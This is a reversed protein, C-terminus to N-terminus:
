LHKAITNKLIESSGGAIEYAKADRLYRGFPQTELMGQAGCIQIAQTAAHVAVRSAMLKAQAPLREIDREQEVARAAAYTLLRAADIETVLEAFYWAIGQHEIIPKGGAKRTRAWELAGTTAARAIGLTIAAALTRSYDLSTAAHRIGNGEEGLMCDLPIRAATLRVTCHPGNRLGFAHVDDTAPEVSVGPADRPVVFATIGGEADALIVFLEAASSSTVYAKAGDLIWGDPTRRAKTDLRKVDSGHAAETMAFSAVLGDNFRPLYRAKAAETGSLRLCTQALFTTILSAGVAASAVAVEEFVAVTDVFSRDSGGYQRPVATSMFGARALAKVEDVPFRDDRDIAAATPAIHEAVFARLRAVHDPDALPAFLQKTM